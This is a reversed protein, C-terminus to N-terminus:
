AAASDGAQERAPAVARCSVPGIAPLGLVTVGAVAAIAADIILAGRTGASQILRRAVFAGAVSTLAMPAMALGAKLASDGLVQQLYLSLPFITATM